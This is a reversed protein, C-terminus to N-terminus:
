AGAGKESVKRGGPRNPHPYVRLGKAWLKLAEWHIAGVVAATMVPHRLLQWRLSSPTWDRRELTLTADFNPRDVGESRDVTNMHAVFHEAPSTVIFEYDLSMGMFPSVHMTKPVRCRFTPSGQRGPDASPLWYTCQEGFTSHVECMVQQPVGTRDCCFYFSIPNFTYGLYRLHTLLYIPGDPLALGHRAADEAVRARLPRTPDGLHDRDDFAVWNFRNLSTLRSVAMQEAVRDVDVLVMFLRYTFAHERPRFRRHRLRGVYLAPGM